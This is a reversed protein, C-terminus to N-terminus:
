TAPWDIRKDDHLRKIDAWRLTHLLSDFHAAQFCTSLFSRLDTDISLYANAANFYMAPPSSATTIMQTQSQPVHSTTPTINLCARIDSTVSSLNVYFTMTKQRDFHGKQFVGSPRKLLVAQNHPM